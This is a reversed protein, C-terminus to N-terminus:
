PPVRVPRENFQRTRSLGDGDGELIWAARM